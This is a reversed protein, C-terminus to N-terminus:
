PKASQKYKTKAERLIRIALDIAEIEPPEATEADGPSLARKCDLRNEAALWQRAHKTPLLLDGVECELAAAVKTLTDVTVNGAANELYNIYRVTKKCRIALDQQTLQLSQRRVRINKSIDKKLTM